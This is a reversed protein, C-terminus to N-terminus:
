YNPNKEVYPNGDDIPYHNYYMTNDFSLTSNNTRNDTKMKRYIWKGDDAGGPNHIKYPWLSFITATPSDIEYHWEEDAIRWRKMDYYRHDEFALEVRRENKIREFDLESASIEFDPGGARNRVQNIYNLAIDLTGQGNYSGVGLQALYWAAEAGNLLAEGYRFVPYPVSSAGNLESGSASDVFKRLLFGTGSIYWNSSGDATRLPGDVGTMVEGDYTASGVEAITQAAQFLYGGNGDPIALGAQLDVPLNRFSSGPLIVTAALRPDRGAFIDGVNDYVNYSQTSTYDNVSEVVEEGQYADIDTHLHGEVLEYDNVLNLVPNAQAGSKDVAAQSRPIHWQTFYNEVQVGDYAKCFILEPNDAPSATFAEYYNQTYDSNKNYLTYGLDTLAQVADLCEELYGQALSADIGTAGSALNLNKSASKDWNYALTGAYLMARCKLALAAGQTIRTKSQAGELGPLSADVEDAIFDYIVSEKDRPKALTLPDDPYETVETILPVGGNQTVMRFYVFARLVRAESIYYQLNQDSVLGASYQELNRLHLNLERVLTYDYYARYDYNVNNSFAWYQSNDASEDWRSLDYSLNDTAFDQWYKMRSYFNAALSNIGADTSYTEEDSMGALNEQELWDNCSTLSAACLLIAIIYKNRKM